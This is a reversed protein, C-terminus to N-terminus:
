APDVAQSAPPRAAAMSPRALWAFLLVMLGALCWLPLSPEVEYLLTSGLPAVVFGIGQTASALGAAAGQREAPVALSAGTMAGPLTFGAGVGMAAYAAFYSAASETFLLVLLGVLWFVIGTLVMRRAPWRLLKVQVTQTALLALGVLTLAIALQPGAQATSLGLKDQFYFGTSVQVTVIACWTLVGALLWPRLAPAFPSVGAQQVHARPAATPVMALVVFFAALCLGTALVLPWVLGRLALVGGLAPGLVLGVGSAAGIIAMGASREHAATHDAMLAQAATPVAPLFVGIGARTVTVLLFLATGTITAGLGQWVAATFLVYTVFLGAFGTLMVFRRGRRDSAAGWAAATAAMALSGISLMWGGQSVSLHLSRILPALIPLIAASALGSLAVCTFILAKIHKASRTGPEAAQVTM